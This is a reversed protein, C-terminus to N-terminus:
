SVIEDVLGILQAEAGFFYHPLSDELLKKWFAEDHYKTDDATSREAFFRSYIETLKQTLKLDAEQNRVDGIASGSFGHVMVIDEPAAYRVDCAQLVIAAMSMAYGRVEGVVRCGKDQAYRIARIIAAGADVAGGYSTILLTIDGEGEALTQFQNTLLAAGCEEVEGSLVVIRLNHMTAELLDNYNLRAHLDLRWGPSSKERKAM